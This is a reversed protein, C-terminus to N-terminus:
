KFKKVLLCLIVFVRKNANRFLKNMNPNKSKKTQFYFLNRCNLCDSVNVSLFAAALPEYKLECLTMTYDLNPVRTEILHKVFVIEEHSSSTLAILYIHVYICPLPGFTVCSHM